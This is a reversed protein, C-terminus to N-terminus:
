EPPTALALGLANEITYRGPPQRILWAAAELAGRAFVDRSLASHAIELNEEAGSFVVRHDGIVAGERVSRIDTPAIAPGGSDRIAEALRLATGSPTDRKAAHHAEALSVGFRTGLLRAAETALHNLVVVGIAMNPAVLVPVSRAADDLDRRNEATLATTGVVLAARNEVAIGVAARTGAPSSFDIIADPSSAGTFPKRRPSELRPIAVVPHFRADSEALACVRRGM